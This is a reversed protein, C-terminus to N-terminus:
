EKYLKAEYELLIVLDFADEACARSVLEEKLGQDM